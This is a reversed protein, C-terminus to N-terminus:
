FQPLASTFGLFWGPPSASAGQHSFHLVILVTSMQAALVLLLVPYLWGLYKSTTHGSAAM